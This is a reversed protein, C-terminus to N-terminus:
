KHGCTNEDDAFGDTLVMEQLFESQKADSVKRERTLRFMTMLLQLANGPGSTIEQRIWGRGREHAASCASEPM